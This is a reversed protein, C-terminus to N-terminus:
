CPDDSRESKGVLRRAGLPRGPLNSKGAADLMIEAKLFSRIGNKTIHSDPKAGVYPQM